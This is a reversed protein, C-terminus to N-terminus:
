AYAWEGLPRRVARVRATRTGAEQAPTRVLPAPCSTRWRVYATPVRTGAEPTGYTGRIGHCWLDESQAADQLVRLRAEERAAAREEDHDDHVECHRRVEEVRRQLQVDLGLLQERAIGVRDLLWAGPSHFADRFDRVQEDAGECFLVDSSPLCM